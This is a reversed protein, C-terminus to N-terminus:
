DLVRLFLCFSDLVRAVFFRRMTDIRFVVHEKEGAALELGGVDAQGPNRSRQGQFDVKLLM